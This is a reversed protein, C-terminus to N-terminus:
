DSVKALPGTPALVEVSGRIHSICLQSQSHSLLRPSRAASVSVPPPAPPPPPPPSSVNCRTTSALGKTHQTADQEQIQSIQCAETPQLMTSPPRGNQSPNTHPRAVCHDMGESTFYNTPDVKFTKCPCISRSMYWYSSCYSPACHECAHM